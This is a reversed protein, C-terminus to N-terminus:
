GTGSRTSDAAIGTAFEPRYVSPPSPVDLGRAACLVDLTRRWGQDDMSGPAEGTFVLPEVLRWGERAEEARAEPHRRLLEEVGGEPRTRQGTLSAVLADRMRAVLETPLRDAAVLGSAYVDLGVPVARLPAGVLRRIRPLADVFEVLADARGAVLADRTQGAEMPVVECGELGRRHLSAVFEQMHPKDPSGIVRRGALDAPAAMSSSELVLAAVPSRRVIVAAFRAALDGATQRATLYHHVSTLCFDSDGEAVQLVNDPGRGRQPELIDVM